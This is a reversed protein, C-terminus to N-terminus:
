KFADKVHSTDFKSTDIDSHEHEKKYLYVPTKVHSTDFKSTDIDPHKEFDSHEKEFNHKNFIKENIYNVINKM